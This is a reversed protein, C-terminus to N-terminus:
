GHQRYQASLASAGLQSVIPTNPLTTHQNINTRQSSLSFTVLHCPLAQIHVSLASARFRPFYAPKGYLVTEMAKRSGIAIGIATLQRSQWLKRDGDLSFKMSVEDKV